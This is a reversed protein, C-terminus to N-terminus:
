RTIVAPDAFVANGFRSVLARADRMPIRKGNLYATIFADKVGLTVTQDKRSRAKDMDVFVGTTYRIKNTETRESNLPSINFLKDLATPKSYVGVQVTFFLGKVTEVQRAPAAGPVNYYAAAEPAPQFQALVAEATAPYNALVAQEAARSSDSVVAPREPVAVRIETAPRQTPNSAQAIAQGAPQQAQATRMAQALPVRKGDQYAVVFADRYGNARVQETARAAGQATTFNGATYRIIGNGIREGTLPALNSFNEPSLEHRFAGVQVKFVVGAPMPADIAIPEIRTVPARNLAFEDTTIAPLLASPASPVPTPAPSTTAASTADETTTSRVPPAVVETTAATTDQRSPVNRAEGSSTGSATTGGQEPAGTTAPPSVVANSPSQTGRAEALVPEVRRARQELAQIASARAPDLGQLISAAQAENMAAASNLRESSRHLSDARQHMRVSENTLRSAQVMADTGVPTGNSGNNALIRKSQELLTDALQRTSRAQEADRAGRDRQELALAKAAFYRSHDTENLVIAQEEDSLYYYRMLRERAKAAETADAEASAATAADSAAKLAERHLSDSLDRQLLAAEELASRQSRKATSASDQLTNAKDAAAVSLRELEDARASALRAVHALSSADEENTAVRLSATSDASFFEKYRANALGDSAATTRGDETAGKPANEQAIAEEPKGFMAREIAVYDSRDGAKFEPRLLYNKVTLSRDMARLAELEQAYATRYLSDRVLIDESRDAQKRLGAAADMGRDGERELEVALGMVPEGVSVGARQVLTNLEKASDQATKFEERTYFGMGQGMETRQIMHDDILKDTKDRLKERQKGTPMNEIESELSDIRDELNVIAEQRENLERMDKMAAKSRYEVPSNYVYEPETSVQVYNDNHPTAATASGGETSSSGRTAAEAALAEDEIRRSETADYSRQADALAQEAERLHEEKMVRLRDMRTLAASNQAPNRELFALQRASEADISDVLMLELGHLGNARDQPDVINDKIRQKDKGYGPFLEALLAGEPTTSPFELAPRVRELSDKIAQAAEPTPATFLPVEVPDSGKGNTNTYTEADATNGLPHESGGNAPVPSNSTETTGSAPVEAVTPTTEAQMAARVEAIRADLSDKRDKNREAARVQMLEALENALLFSREEPDVQPQQVATAPLVRGDERSPQTSPTTIGGATAMDTDTRAPLTTQEPESTRASLDPVRETTSQDPPDGNAQAQDTSSGATNAEVPSQTATTTIEQGATVPDNIVEQGPKLGGITAVPAEMTITNGSAHQADGSGNRPAVATASAMDNASPAPTGWDFTRQELQRVEEAIAADFRADLALANNRQETAAIRQGLQAVQAEDLENVSAPGNGTELRKALEAQGRATLTAREAIRAKAFSRENEEKLASLQTELEAREKAITAKKGGKADTEERQKRAIRDALDDEEERAVASRQLSAAAERETTTAARRMKEAATISGDPANKEDLRKKLESLRAVAVEDNKNSFAATIDTHLKTATSAKISTAMREQALTQGAQYAATARQNSVRAIARERAAALMKENKVAEDPAVNAEAVFAEARQTAGDAIGAQELAISYAAMSQDDMTRAKEELEEADKRALEQVSAQTMDGSFGARTLPDGVSAHEVPTEAVVARTGVDLKARRRIEELALAIMDEDLPTDFYNKIMLKEGGQDVLMMEQRYAKPEENRPVDVVGVHTKGGPGAQVMFKYKGSRPISLVYDGDQDTRVDAVTEQTLVDVVTIHAKRDTEEFSSAYTGKLVTINVPAQSTGVRYVHVMGQKSDRGSAFCAEKGEPDTLYLLEDDPTNVAFDMNVPAGFVDLGKDYASKFVDYGGMSNHGKSCFYFTKGDPALFPYDDDEATNIYGALKVPTAFQGNPMLETRYIDRGTTGGKGYSAFFIPGGKDPIYILSRQKGKKDASSMLEEPTVVIRGGISSLDYFRFFEGGDVEVKNHVDIEKLNSLLNQGNRCQLELADLPFEAMAKKDGTGRFREYAVLAEKFRYTLQYARGLWYWSRPDPAPGQTSRKLYAIATEKDATHLACVGYRYNLDFDEQNNGLLNEYAEKAQAYEGKAFLADAQARQEKGGQASLAIPLYLLCAIAWTRTM